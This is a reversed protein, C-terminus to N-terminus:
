GSFSEAHASWFSDLIMSLHAISTAREPDWPLLERYGREEFRRDVLCVIGKDDDDRIVRGATQLVRTMGPFQYAYAFGTEPFYDAILDREIGLQPLGVGVVIAGILAKGKLDVGESFLGGMVAFGTLPRSTSEFAGIFEDRSAEDMNRTQTILGAPSYLGAYAKYVQDMYRYSPFYVIYNGRRGSIVCNITEILSGISQDRKRFSTDIFPVTVVKLNDIAFPSPLSYWDASESLGMLRAFYAKPQMTASFCIASKLRSFGESLRMSPDVCYLMLSTNGEVKQLLISYGADANESTRLFRLTEFYVDLLKESVDGNGLRLEEEAVECFQRMAILVKDPMEPVVLHGQKEFLAKPSSNDDAKENGSRKNGSSPNGSSNTSNRLSLIARNVSYAANNLSKLAPKNKKLLRGLALYHEKVVTASFMSRGRDILNHAEDLLAVYRGHGSDFFRKLYVVPDFVYNYDSIILDAYRALDLTFEFPCLTHLKAHHEVTQRDLLASSELTESIGQQVRDYYGKQM